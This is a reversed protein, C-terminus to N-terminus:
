MENENRKVANELMVKSAKLLYDASECAMDIAKNPNKHYLRKAANTKEHSKEIYQKFTPKKM